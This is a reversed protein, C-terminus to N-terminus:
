YRGKPVAPVSLVIPEARLDLTAWSYPTDNNPTVVDRNDPTFAEAYHRFTNFGGLFEPADKQTAQKYWPNYSRMPAYAYIYAEKAIAKAEAESVAAHAPTAAFVLTLGLSLITKLITLSRRPPLAPGGNGCSLM